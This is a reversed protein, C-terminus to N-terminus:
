GPALGGALSTDYIAVGLVKAALLFLLLFFPSLFLFSLVHISEKCGVSALAM